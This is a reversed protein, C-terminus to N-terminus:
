MNLKLNEGISMNGKKAYYDSDSILEDFLWSYNENVAEKHIDMENTEIWSLVNALEDDVNLLREKSNIYNGKSFVLLKYDNNKYDCNVKLGDGYYDGEIKDITKYQIEM